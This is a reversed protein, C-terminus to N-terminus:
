KLEQLKNAAIEAAPGQPDEKQIQQYMKKAEAPQKASYLDALQLQATSKSVTETPHAILDQYVKVAEDSRGTDRYLAALALKGLAAIDKPGSDAVSKLEREAAGNDGLDQDALGLFYHAWKASKTMGYRSIVLQLQQSAAQAREKASTYSEVGPQAPEGAGRLPANLIEVGRGLAATAAQDQYGTKYWIGLVICLVVAAIIGGYILKTRHDVAWSVTEKATATFSDHKLQKRQYARM